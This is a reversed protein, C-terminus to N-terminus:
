PVEGAIAALKPRAQRGTRHLVEVSRVDAETSASTTTASRPMIGSSRYPCDRPQSDRRAVTVAAFPGAVWTRCERGAPATFALLGVTLPGPRPRELIREDPSTARSGLVGRRSRDKVAYQVASRERGGSRARDGLSGPPNAGSSSARKTRKALSRHERAQCSSGASPNSRGIPRPVACRWLAIGGRAVHHHSSALREGHQSPWLWQSVPQFGGAIWRTSGAM